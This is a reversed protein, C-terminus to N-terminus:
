KSIRVRVQRPTVNLYVSAPRLTLVAEGSSGPRVPETAVFAAESVLAEPGDLRVSDPTSKAEPLVGVAGMVRVPLRRSGLRDIQVALTEPSIVETAVITSGVPLKVDRASMLHRRWGPEADALDIEARAGRLIALYIERGKGRFSVQAEAPVASMLSLTDALSVLKLPVKRTLEYDRDLAVHAYVLLALFVSVMKITLNSFFLRGVTNM